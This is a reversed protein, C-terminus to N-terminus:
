EISLYVLHSSRLKCNLDVSISFCLVLSSSFLSHSEVFHNSLIFSSSPLFLSFLPGLSSFSLLSYPPRSFTSLSRLVAMGRGKGEELSRISWHFVSSFLHSLHDVKLSLFSLSRVLSPLHFLGCTWFNFSRFHQKLTAFELLSFINRYSDILKISLHNKKFFHM